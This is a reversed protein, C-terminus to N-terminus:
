EIKGMLSIFEMVASFKHTRNETTDKPGGASGPGAYAEVTVSSIFPYGELSSPGAVFIQRSSWRSLSPPV